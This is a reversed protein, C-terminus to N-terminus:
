YIVVQTGIEAWKYLFQSNEADHRVCGASVANGISKISEKGGSPMEEHGKPWVILGHFGYLGDPTFALWHPLYVQFM